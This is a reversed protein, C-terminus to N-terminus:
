PVMESILIAPAIDTYHAVVGIIETRLGLIEAQRKTAVYSRITGEISRVLAQMFSRSDLHNSIIRDAEIPEAPAAGAPAAFIGILSFVLVLLRRIYTHMATM